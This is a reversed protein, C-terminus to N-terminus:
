TGVGKVLVTNWVTSTSNIIQLVTSAKKRQQCNRSSAEFNFVFFFEVQFTDRKQSFRSVIAKSSM